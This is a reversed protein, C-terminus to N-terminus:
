GDLRPWVPPCCCEFVSGSSCLRHVHLGRQVERHAEAELEKARKEADERVVYARRRLESARDYHAKADKVHDYGM